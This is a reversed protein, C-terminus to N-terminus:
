LVLDFDRGYAACLCVRVRVCAVPGVTTNYFYFYTTINPSGHERQFSTANKKKETRGDDDKRERERESEECDRHPGSEETVM